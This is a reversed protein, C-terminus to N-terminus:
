RCPPGVIFSLDSASASSRAAAGAKAASMSPLHVPETSVGPPAMVIVYVNLASPAFSVPLLRPGSPLGSGILFPLSSPLLIENECSM